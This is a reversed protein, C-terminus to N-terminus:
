RVPSLEVRPPPQYSNSPLHGVSADLAQHWALTLGPMLIQKQRELFSRISSNLGCKYVCSEM